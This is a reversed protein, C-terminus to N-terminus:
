ALKAELKAKQDAMDPDDNIVSLTYSIAEISKYIDSDQFVFGSFSGYEEGNLKKVANIFNPEGGSSKEIESIAKNLSNM